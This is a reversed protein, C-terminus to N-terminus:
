LYQEWKEYWPNKLEYPDRPGGKSKSYIKTYVLKEGVFGILNSSRATQGAQETTAWQYVLTKFEEPDLPLSKGLPALYENFETTWCDSKKDLV